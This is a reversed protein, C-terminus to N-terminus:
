AAVLARRKADGLEGARAALTLWVQEVEPGTIMLPACGLAEWRLASFDPYLSTPGGGNEFRGRDGSDLYSEVALGEALIVDHRDLEIHYYTVDDQATQRITCGNILYKVPVLVGGAFVAHDPSLLLDRAPTSEAFAHAAVLVPWVLRPDPHRRCDIHRRGIWRIARPEAGRAVPLLEGVRLHEVATEGDTTRIRTGAAFCTVLALGGGSPQFTVPGSNALLGPINLTTTTPDGVSITLVGSAVDFSGTTAIGGATLPLSPLLLTDGPVFGTITGLFTNVITGAGKTVDNLTLTNSDADNFNFTIDSPAAGAITVTAGSGLDITGGGSATASSITEFGPIITIPPFT